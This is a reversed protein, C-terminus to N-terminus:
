YTWEVLPCHKNKKARVFEMFLNPKKVREEKPHDWRWDDYREKILVALYLLGVLGATIGAIVGIWFLVHIIGYMYVSYLIAFTAGMMALVFLTYAIGLGIKNKTKNSMSPLQYNTDPIADIVRGIGKGLVWLPSLLIALLTGWFYPCLCDVTDLYMWGYVFSNIKAHWSNRNLKM